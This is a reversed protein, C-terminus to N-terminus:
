ALADRVAMVRPLLKTTASCSAVADFSAQCCGSAPRTASGLVFPPTRGMVMPFQEAADHALADHLMHPFLSALKEPWDLSPNSHRAAHAAWGARQPKESKSAPKRHCRAAKPGAALATHSCCWADGAM